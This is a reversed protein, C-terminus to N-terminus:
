EPNWISMCVYVCVLMCVCVVCAYMCVERIGFERYLGPMGSEPCAKGPAGFRVFGTLFIRTDRFVFGPARNTVKKPNENGTLTHICTYKYM